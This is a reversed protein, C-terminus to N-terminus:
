LNLNFLWLITLLYMKQERLLSSITKLSPIIAPEEFKQSVLEEKFTSHRKIVPFVLPISAKSHIHIQCIERKIYKEQHFINTHNDNQLELSLVHKM